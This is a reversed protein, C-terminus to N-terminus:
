ADAEVKNLHIVGGVSGLESALDVVVAGDLLLQSAHGHQLVDSLHSGCEACDGADNPRLDACKDGSTRRAKLRM